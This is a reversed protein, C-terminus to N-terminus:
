APDYVGGVLIADTTAWTFPATSSISSAPNASVVIFVQSVSTNNAQAFGNYAGIASTDHLSVNTEVMRAYPHPLADRNVPLNLTPSSPMTIGTGGLLITVKWAVRGGLYRYTGTTSGTSGVTISTTPTFTIWDSDWTKWASGNFRYTIKNDTRRAFDLGERLTYTSALATLAASDAVAFTRFSRTTSVVSEQSDAADQIAKRWDQTYSGDPYFFGSATTGM